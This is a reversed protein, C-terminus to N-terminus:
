GFMDNERPLGTTNKTNSLLRSIVFLLNYSANSAFDSLHNRWSVLPALRTLGSCYNDVRRLYVGRLAAINIRTPMIGAAFVRFYEYCVFLHKAVTIRLRPFCCVLRTCLFKLFVAATCLYKLFVANSRPEPLNDAKRGLGFCFYAASDLYTLM